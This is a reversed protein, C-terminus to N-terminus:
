ITQFSTQLLADPFIILFLAVVDYHLFHAYHAVPLFQYSIGKVLIIMHM